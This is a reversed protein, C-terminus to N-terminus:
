KLDFSTNAVTNGDDYVIVKYNGKDLDKVSINKIVEQKRAQYNVFEYFSYILENNGFKKMKREGLIVNKPNIIQIYYNKAGKQSIANESLSFSVNLMSAKNAKDVVTLLGLKDESLANVKLDDISLKITSKIM